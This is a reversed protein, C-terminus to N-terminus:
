ISAVEGLLDGREQATLSKGVETPVSTHVMIACMKWFTLWRGQTESNKSLYGLMFGSKLKQLNNALIMLVNVNVSFM